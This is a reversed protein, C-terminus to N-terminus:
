ASFGSQWPMLTRARLTRTLLPQSTATSGAGEVDESAEGRGADEQHIPRTRGENPVKGQDRGDRAQHHKARPRISSHPVLMNPQRRVLLPETRKTVPGERLAFGDETALPTSHEVVGGAPHSVIAAGGLTFV